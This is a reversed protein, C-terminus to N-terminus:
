RANGLHRELELLSQLNHASAFVDIHPLAATMGRTLPQYAEMGLLPNLWIVKRVRRRIAGLEAALLQPEGTEWGDSLLIFLTNQSLLRGHRLNFEQLSEGIKTGGSWGATENSIASLADHLYRARLAATIDTLRTSFLFANVRKFHKALVYAYRVLFLSYANMSGSIDLLIVLRRQQLKRRRFRLYLPDGGRSINQRVTRRVDVKNGLRDVRLRRSLRVSMRRLLRLAIRELEAADEEGLNSFDAEMLREHPTAGVVAKGVGEGSNARTSWSPLIAPTHKIQEAERVVRQSKKIVGEPLEPPWGSSNWFAEFLSEFVDWDPKSSCVVARLTIKLTERDQVGVANVAQLACLTETLGVSLGNMRAFRCFRVIDAEIGDRSAQVM